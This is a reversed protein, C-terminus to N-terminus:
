EQVTMKTVKATKGNDFVVVMDEYDAATKDAYLINEVVYSLVEAPDTITTSGTKLTVGDSTVDKAAIAAKVSAVDTGAPFAAKVNAVFNDLYANDVNEPYLAAFATQDQAITEGLVAWGEKSGLTKSGVNFNRLLGMLAGAKAQIYPSAGDLAKDLADFVKEDAACPVNVASKGYTFVVSQSTTFKADVLAKDEETCNENSKIYEAFSKGSRVKQLISAADTASIATIDKLSVLTVTGLEKVNDYITQGFKENFSSSNKAYALVLAADNATLIGSGDVDGMKAAFTPVAMTSVTLAALALAVVKKLNKKM